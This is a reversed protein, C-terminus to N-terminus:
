WPYFLWGLPNFIGEILLSIPWFLGGLFAKSLYFFVQTLPFPTELPPGLLLYAATTLLRWGALIVSSAIFWRLTTERATM